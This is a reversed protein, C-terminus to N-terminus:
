PQLTVFHPLSPLTEGMFQHRVSAAVEGWRTVRYGQKSDKEGGRWTVLNVQHSEAKETGSERGQHQEEGGGANGPQHHVRGMRARLLRRPGNLFGPVMVIGRRGLLVGALADPGTLCSDGSRDIDVVSEGGESRDEAIAGGGEMKLENIQTPRL